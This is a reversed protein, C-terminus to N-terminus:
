SLLVLKKNIKLDGRNFSNILFVSAMVNLIQLGSKKRKSVYM